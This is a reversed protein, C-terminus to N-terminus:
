LQSKIKKSVSKKGPPMGPRKKLASISKVITRSKVFEKEDVVAYRAGQELALGAFRNGNFNEGKLAFFLSDKKVARSDTCVVPYKQFIKYIEAVTM